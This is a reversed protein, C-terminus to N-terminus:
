YKFTINVMQPSNSINEKEKPLVSAPRRGVTVPFTTGPLICLAKEILMCHKLCSMCHKWLLLYNPGLLNAQEASSLSVSSGESDMLKITDACKTVM